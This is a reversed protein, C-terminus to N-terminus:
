ELNSYDISPMKSQIDELFQSYDVFEIDKPPQFDSDSVMTPSCNYNYDQDLDISQNSESYDDEEMEEQDNLKDQSDQVVDLKMKFATPTNKDANDQWTYVYVGDSISYMNSTVGDQKITIKQNFKQGSIIMSGSSETDQSNDTWICKQPINKAILDRLSFSSSNGEQELSPTTTSSNNDKVGCASLFLASLLILSFSLSKKM